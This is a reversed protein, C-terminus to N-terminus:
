GGQACFQAIEFLGTGRRWIEGGFVWLCSDITSVLWGPKKRKLLINEARKLDSVDNVTEFPTWGDWRGCTFNLALFDGDLYPVAPPANFGSKTFMYELGSSKVARVIEERLPGPRYNEYPVYHKALGARRLRDKIKEISFHEPSKSTRSDTSPLRVGRRREGANFRVQFYPSAKMFRVPKPKQWFDSKELDTDLTPWWGKPLLNEDKVRDLIRSMAEKLDDALREGGILSEIGVGLGCSGLVPEVLPWVGGRGVPITMLELPSRMAYEFSQATLVLGCKLRTIAFLDMLNHLNATERIMGSWFMLSVLIRGEGAFRRLEEDSFEPEFFGEPGVNAHWTHELHRVSQFPPRCPDIVQFCQGLKSLEFFDKDQDQRGYVVQGKSAIADGLAHIVKEQPISYLGVLDEESATPLWHAVLTPDGVLWGKAQTEWRRALRTTLRLYDDDEGVCDVVEVQYGNRRLRNVLDDEVCVCFIKGREPCIESLEQESILDAVGLARRFLIEPYLYAELGALSEPFRTGIMVVSTPLAVEFLGFVKKYFDSVRDGVAVVPIGLNTLCSRFISDKDLTVCADSNLLTYYFDEFHRDGSVTGGTLQGLELRRVDGGPFHVGQHYSDYYADFHVNQSKALWALTSATPINRTAGLQGLYLLLRQKM